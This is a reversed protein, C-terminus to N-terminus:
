VQAATNVAETLANKFASFSPSSCTDTNFFRGIQIAAEVKRLGGQFYGAQNLIKELAEWTGGSIADCNRYKAKRPITGPVAPYASRVSAWDGFYWAELEEVAIRNAVRWPGGAAASRSLTAAEAAEDELRKKLQNCDGNDRDVLVIIRTSPPLWKSYGRLRSGLKKLLDSKGQYAHIAFTARTGVIQPLVPTLFVEMSQEEVLIEFHEARM